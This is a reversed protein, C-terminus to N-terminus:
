RVKIIKSFSVTKGESTIGQLNIIYDSKIDATWFEIMARGNKDPKVAPNWYLTNRYDAAPSNRIETSSYDPSVFYCVPDLIRYHLRIADVHLAGNSFDGAKSIVNVIGNFIYNGVRYKEWVVDIKEILDPDLNAIVSLDKIIVGDIMVCPTGELRNRFPDIITMEYVSNTKELTVHPVLEFFVEPM